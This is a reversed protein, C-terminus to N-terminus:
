STSRNMAGAMAPQVNNGMAMNMATQANGRASAAPRSVREYTRQTVPSQRQEASKDEQRIQPEAYVERLLPEGLKDAAAALLKELNIPMGPQMFPMLRELVALVTQFRQQPTRSVLSHPNVEFKYDLFDGERDSPALEIEERSSTGEVPRSDYFTRVDERWLYWGIDKMVETVAHRLKEGMKMIRANVQGQILEDQKATESQPALGLMADLNGASRSFEQQLVQYLAVLMQDPGGLSMEKVAEPNEVLIMEGDAADKHAKADGDDGKQGVGYRKMSAAQRYLKRAIGQIAENTDYLDQGPCKPMLNSPVDALGLYHYPGRVPGNWELVRLITGGDNACTIMLQEEPFFLDMLECQEELVRENELQAGIHQARESGDAGFEKSRQQEIFKRSEDFRPNERVEELNARYRNGSYKMEDFRKASMDLVVDDLDVVDAFMSVAEQPHGPMIELYEESMYGVKICGLGFVAEQVWQSVTAGFNLLKLETNVVQEFDAAFPKLIKNNPELSLQPTGGTLANMLGEVALAWQNLPSNKRASNDAYHSNAYARILLKRFDRYPRLNEDNARISDRLRAKHHPNFPDFSM